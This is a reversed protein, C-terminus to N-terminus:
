LQIMLIFCKRFYELRHLFIKSSFQHVNRIELVIINIGVIYNINIQLSRTLPM